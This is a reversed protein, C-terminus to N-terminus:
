YPFDSSHAIKPFPTNSIYNMYKMKTPFLYSSRPPPRWSLYSNSGKFDIKLFGTKNEFKICICTYVHMNFRYMCTYQDMRTSLIEFSFNEM